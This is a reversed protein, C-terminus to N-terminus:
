TRASDRIYLKREAYEIIAGYEELLDAGLIGDIRDAGAGELQGNVSSLDLVKADVGLLRVTELALEDLSTSYVATESLGCEAYGRASGSTPATTLELREASEKDVITASAGTDILLSANRGNITGLTQLHGVATRSLSVSCYGRDSLFRHVADISEIHNHETRPGEIDTV